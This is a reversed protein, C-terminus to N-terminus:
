STKSQREQVKGPKNLDLRLSQSVFLGYISKRRLVYAAVKEQPCLGLALILAHCITFAWSVSFQITQKAQPKEPSTQYCSTSMTLGTLLFPYIKFLELKDKSQIHCCRKYFPLVLNSLVINWPMLTNEETRWGRKMPVLIWRVWNWLYATIFIQKKKEGCFMEKTSDYKM